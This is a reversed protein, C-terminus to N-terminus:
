QTTRSDIANKLIQEAPNTPEWSDWNDFANNIQIFIDQDGDYRSFIPLENEPVIEIDKVEEESEEEYIEPFLSGNVQGVKHMVCYKSAYEIDKSLIIDRGCARSYEAAIIVSQELIPLIINVMAELYEDNQNVNDFGTRMEKCYYM